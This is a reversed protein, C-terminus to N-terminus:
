SLLGAPHRSFHGVPNLSPSFTQLFFAMAPLQQVAQFLFPGQLWLPSDLSGTPLPQDLGPWQESHRPDGVGSQGPDGKPGPLGDGGRQGPEGDEGNTGPPGRPGQRGPLGPAGTPGTSGKPGPAGDM